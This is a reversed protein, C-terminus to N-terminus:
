VVWGCIGISIFFSSLLIESIELFLKKKKGTSVYFRERKRQKQTPKSSAERFHILSDKTSSLFILMAEQFNIGNVELLFTFSDFLLHSFPHDLRCFHTFTRPFMSIDTCSNTQGKEEDLSRELKSNKNQVSATIEADFHLSNLPAIRTLWASYDPSCM